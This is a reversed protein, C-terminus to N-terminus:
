RIGSQHWRQIEGRISRAGPVEKDASGGVTEMDDSSAGNGQSHACAM